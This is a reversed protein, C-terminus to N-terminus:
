PGLRIAAENVKYLQERLELVHDEWYRQTNFWPFALPFAPDNWRRALWAAYHLMRLARLAEILALERTDFHAFEEYGELLESFQASMEHREGALMMWLDQIAPGSLCDDLDVFWPQADHWLINGRHCDGHLRIARYDGTEAFRARIGGLLDRTTSAYAARLDAPIFDNELLFAIAADGMHEIDIAPRHTFHGAQGVGHLRGIFRGIRLLDDPNDLDPWRGPQLPFLAHRYGDHWHLTEGHADVLPAVVPLEAAQLELSFAHEERIAENSWRLPRYFKAIVPPGTELGIRYVRNEYSNLALIHGSTVLGRADLTDLIRHPDLASYDQRPAPNDSM